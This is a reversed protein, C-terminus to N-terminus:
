PAPPLPQLLRHPPWPPLPLPLLDFLLLLLLDFLLDLLLDFLLLQEHRM